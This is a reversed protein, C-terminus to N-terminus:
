LVRDGLELKSRTMWNRGFTCSNEGLVECKSGKYRSYSRGRNKRASKWSIGEFNAARFALERYEALAFSLAAWGWVSMPSNLELSLAIGEREPLWVRSLEFAEMARVMPTFRAKIFLRTSLGSVVEAPVYGSIENDFVQGRGLRPDSKIASSPQNQPPPPNVLKKNTCLESTYEFPFVFAFIMATAPSASAVGM